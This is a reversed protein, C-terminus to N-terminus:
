IKNGKEILIKNMPLGVFILMFGSGSNCSEFSEKHGLLVAKCAHQM